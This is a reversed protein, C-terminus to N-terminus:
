KKKAADKYMQLREKMEPQGDIADGALKVAKEQHELAKQVDGLKFEILALTDLVAWAEEDPTAEVAKEAATRAVGLSKDGAKGEGDPDVITWAVQNLFAPNDKLEETDLLAGALKATADDDELARMRGLAIMRLSAMIQPNDETLESAQDIVDNVAAAGEANQLKGALGQLKTMNAQLAAQRRAAEEAEKKADAIDFDGAVVKELPSDMTAPHGIWAVKGEQNVIFATPIGNQDAAEMWNKAMKGDQATKGEPVDDLAVRYDMKDGMEKLFPEVADTDPEFADVGIMIVDKDKYKHQLETLHPITVRCPGCWTAWFEVVYVKGKEFKAVEEGKVFKSVTLPPADDGVELTAKGGDQALAASGALLFAVFGALRKRM